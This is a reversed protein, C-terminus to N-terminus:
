VNFKKLIKVQNQSLNLHTRKLIKDLVEPMNKNHMNEFIPEKAKCFYLAKESTNM